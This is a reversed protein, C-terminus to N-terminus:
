LKGNKRERNDIGIIIFLISFLILGWLWSGTLVAHVADNEIIFGAFICLGGLAIAVLSMGLCALKEWIKKM